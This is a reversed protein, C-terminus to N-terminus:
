RNVLDAPDDLDALRDLREICDRETLWRPQLRPPQLVGRDRLDTVLPLDQLSFKGLLLLDLTGGARLHEILDLVGRLYIADKTLGGSRFARMTTTFASSAPVGEEVLADHADRFSAGTVMRHVTIIRTALQRLRFATLGGSAVEALVALGEQTEDYGSLGTGMVKIPQTAGNVQTVLHTGVEHQMLAHARVEQVKSQPGLILSEGSVMVGSVDKRIEAHMEIDADQERYYDIEEQALTLVEHADLSKGAGEPVTVTSMLRDAIQRLAPTIAGYLEISLPMFDATDRAELMEIQLGLERHKERLLTGLVPDDVDRIPMDKLVQRLVDPDDELTRYQFEPLEGTALFEARAQEVNMPTVDLLFRFSRSVLALEHDIARDRLSATIGDRDGPPRVGDTRDGLTIATIKRATKAAGPTGASTGSTRADSAPGSTSGTKSGTKSAAKNGSKNGTKNDTKKSM